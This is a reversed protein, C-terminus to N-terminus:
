EADPDNADLASDLRAIMGLPTPEDPVAIHKRIARHLVSDARSARQRLDRFLDISPDFYGIEGIITGQKNEWGSEAIPRLLMAGASRRETHRRDGVTMAFSDGRTSIRHAIDHSNAELRRIADGITSRATEVTHRISLQSNLHAARLHELRAIEADLGAKQILRQDGSALAKVKAL